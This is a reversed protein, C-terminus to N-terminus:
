EKPAIRARGTALREVQARAQAVASQAQFTAVRDDDSMPISEVYQTLRAELEGLASSIPGLLAPAYQQGLHFRPLPNSM